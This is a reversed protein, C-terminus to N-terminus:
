VRFACAGLAPSCGVLKLSASNWAFQTKMKLESALYFQVAACKSPIAGLFIWPVFHYKQHTQGKKATGSPALQEM